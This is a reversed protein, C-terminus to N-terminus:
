RQESINNAVQQSKTGLEAKTALANHLSALMSAKKASAADLSAWYRCHSAGLGFAVGHKTELAPYAPNKARLEASALHERASARLAESQQQYYKAIAKHEAPTRATKLLVKLEAKSLTSNDEAISANPSLVMLGLVVAMM